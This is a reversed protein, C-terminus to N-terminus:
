SWREKEVLNSSKEYGLKDALTILQQEICKLHEWTVKIKEKIEDKYDSFDGVNMESMLRIMSATYDSSWILLTMVKYFKNRTEDMNNTM